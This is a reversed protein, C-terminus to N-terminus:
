IHILSLVVLWALVCALRFAPFVDVSLLAWIHVDAYHGCAKEREIAEKEDSINARGDDTRIVIIQSSSISTFLRRLIM